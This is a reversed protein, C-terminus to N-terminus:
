VLWIFLWRIRDIRIESSRYNMVIINNDNNSEIIMDSYYFNISDKGIVGIRISKLSPLNKLEFEGAYDSFSYQGIEILELKDCNLIHFSKSEDYGHSNRNMTFSNGGIKLSELQILGDIIFSKTYQMNKNGIEISRLLKFASLDFTTLLASNCEDNCISLIKNLISITFLSSCTSFGSPVSKHEIISSLSSHVDIRIILENQNNSSLISSHEKNVYKLSDSLKVTECNPIDLQILLWNWDAYKGNRRNSSVM